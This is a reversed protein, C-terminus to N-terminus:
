LDRKNKQDEPIGGKLIMGMDNWFTSYKESEDKALKKLMDLVSKTLKKKIM